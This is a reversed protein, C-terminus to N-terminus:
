PTLLGAKIERFREVLRDCTRLQERMDERIQRADTHRTELMLKESEATLVGIVFDCEKDTLVHSLM